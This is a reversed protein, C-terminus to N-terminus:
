HRSASQSQAEFSAAEVPRRDSLLQAADRFASNMEIRHGNRDRWGADTLQEVLNELTQFVDTM